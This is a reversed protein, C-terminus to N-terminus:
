QKPSKGIWGLHTHQFADGYKLGYGLARDTSSHGLLVWGAFQIIPSHFVYGGVIIAAALGRHHAINYLVAGFRSGLLYGIMTLDPTIWFVLFWWWSWGGIVTMAWAFAALGLEELKIIRQM